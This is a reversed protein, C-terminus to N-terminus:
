LVTRWGEDLIEVSNKWSYFDEYKDLHERTLVNGGNVPVGDMSVNASSFSSGAKTRVTYGMQRLEKRMEAQTIQRKATM